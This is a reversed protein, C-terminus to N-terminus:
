IRGSIRKKMQTFNSRQVVRRDTNRDLRVEGLPGQNFRVIPEKMLFHEERTNTSSVRVGYVLYYGIQQPQITLQKEQISMSKEFPWQKEKITM